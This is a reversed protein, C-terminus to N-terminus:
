KGLFAELGVGTQTLVARLSRGAHLKPDEGLGRWKETFV